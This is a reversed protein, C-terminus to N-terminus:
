LQRRKIERFVGPGQTKRQFDRNRELQEETMEMICTQGTNINRVEVQIILTM